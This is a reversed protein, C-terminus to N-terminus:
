KNYERLERRGIVMRHVADPGDAYRL